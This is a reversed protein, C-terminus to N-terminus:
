LLNPCINSSRSANGRSTTGATIQQSSGMGSIACPPRMLNHRLHCLLADRLIGMLQHVDVTHQHDLVANLQLLHIHPLLMTKEVYPGM